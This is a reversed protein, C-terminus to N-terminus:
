RGLSADALNRFILLIGRHRWVATTTTTTAHAPHVLWSTLLSSLSPWAPEGVRAM